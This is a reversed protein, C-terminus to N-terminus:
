KKPSPSAVFPETHARLIRGATEGDGAALHDVITQHEKVAAQFRPQRHATNLTQRSRVEWGLSDWVKLMTRNGSLAVVRRHFALNYRAYDDLDKRRVAAVLGDVDAQLLALNDASVPIALRACAEEICARLAYAERTEEESAVRIYTGKYRQTEVLGLSELERLAERVPAQSTQFEQALAMEKLRTGASYSGDLIRAIVAKRIKDRMCDREIAVCPAPAADTAKM